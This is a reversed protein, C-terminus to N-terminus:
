RPAAPQYLTNKSPIESELERLIKLARAVMEPRDQGPQPALDMGVAGILTGSADHLAQTIDYIPDQTTPEEVNPQGTQMPGYEDDDCKEGIDKPDTAAITTCGTDSKVALEVNKVEPYRAVTRDVLQQAYTKQLGASQRALAPSASLLVLLIFEPLLRRKPSSKM